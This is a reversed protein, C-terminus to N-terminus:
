SIAEPTVGVFAYAKTPYESFPAAALAFRISFFAFIWFRTESRITLSKGCGAGLPTKFKM